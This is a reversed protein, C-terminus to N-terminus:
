CHSKMFDYTKVITRIQEVCIHYKACIEANIKKVPAKRLIDIANAIRDCEIANYRKDHIYAVVATALDATSTNPTLWDRFTEALYIIALDEKTRDHTSHQSVKTKIGLKESNFVLKAIDSKDFTTISVNTYDDNEDRAICPTMDAVIAKQIHQPLETGEYVIM